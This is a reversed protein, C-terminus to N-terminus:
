RGLSESVNPRFLIGGLSGYQERDHRYIRGRGEAIPCFDFRQVTDATRNGTSERRISIENLGNRTSM